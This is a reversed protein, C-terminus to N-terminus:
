QNNLFRELSITLVGMHYESLPGYEILYKEADSNLNVASVLLGDVVEFSTASLGWEGFDQTVLYTGTDPDFSVEAELEAGAESALWFSNALECSYFVDTEWILEFTDPPLFYAASYGDIAQDKPVMVLTYGTPDSSREVVGEAMAKECSAIAITILEDVASIAKIEEPEAEPELAQNQDPEAEAQGQDQGSYGSDDENVPTNVTDSNQTTVQNTFGNSCGGLIAVLLALSIISAKRNM